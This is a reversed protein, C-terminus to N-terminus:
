FSGVGDIGLNWKRCPDCCGRVSGDPPGPGWRGGGSLPVRNIKSFPSQGPSSYHGHKDGLREWQNSRVRSDVTSPSPIFERGSGTNPNMIKM